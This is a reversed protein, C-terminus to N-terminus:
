ARRGDFFNVTIETSDGSTLLTVIKAATESEGKAKGRAYAMDIAWVFAFGAILCSFLGAGKTEGNWGIAIFLSGLWCASFPYLVRATYLVWETTKRLYSM